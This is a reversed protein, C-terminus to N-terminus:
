FTIKRKRLRQILQLVKISAQRRMFQWIPHAVTFDLQYHLPLRGANRGKTITLWDYSM